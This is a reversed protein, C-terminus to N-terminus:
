IMLIHRILLPIDLFLILSGLPVSCHGLPPDVCTRKTLGFWKKASSVPRQLLLIRGQAFSLKYQLINLMNQEPPVLHWACGKVCLWCVRGQWDSYCGFMNGLGLFHYWSLHSNSYSSDRCALQCGDEIKVFPPSPHHYINHAQLGQYYCSTVLLTENEHGGGFYRVNRGVGGGKNM